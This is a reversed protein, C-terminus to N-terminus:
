YRNSSFLLGPRLKVHDWENCDNAASAVCSKKPVSRVNHVTAVNGKFARVEFSEDFGPEEGVAHLFMGIKLNDASEVKIKLPTILEDSVDSDINVRGQSKGISIVTGRVPRKIYREYGPPYVPLQFTAGESDSEAEWSSLFPYEDIFPSRDNYEGLGAAWDSFNRLQDKTVLFTGRMWTISILDIRDALKSHAGHEGHGQSHGLRIEPFLNVGTPSVEARGRVIRM